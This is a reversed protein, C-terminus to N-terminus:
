ATAYRSEPDSPDLSASDTTRKSQVTSFVFPLLLLTSVTSLLLGGIVARGLPASQQGSDGVGLAMPIMGVVMAGTTMLIPRLRSVAGDVAAKSANGSEKRLREAFTVMLISNAVSVGISMIAGMFSEINLTTGTLRLMLCVGVVVAPVGSVVVLALMLSQFNAALLLFISVVALILGLRLGSFIQIMPAIQGRIDMSVGRPRDKQLPELVRAIDRAAYGLDRGHINATLSVMRQMNYRDIEGLMSTPKIQAVRDLPVSGGNLGIPIDRISQYSALDEQPVQVQIQHGIGTSPDAWYNPLVLRSSSTAPIVTRGILETSFGRIGATRRDIDVSVEPYDFVQGYQLDRLYPVHSLVEKVRSAFERDDRLKPGAIAVEIPTPSGQSMVRNLIGSPEFSVITDPFQADLIRRLKEQLAPVDLHNGSKLNVEITSEQPGSSWLYVVDNASSGVVTGVFATTSDVNEPGTEREILAQVKKTMEETHDLYTGTPARLRVQFGLSDIRPFIEQGIQPGVIALAACVAVAYGGVLAWRSKMGARLFKTYQRQLGKFFATEHHGHGAKPEPLIWTSLVPVFSRALFFSTIIAFGVALSLPQFLAQAVGQMFFAPTFVALVCLMTLLCPVIMENTADLVARALNKGQAVHTHINEITITTEDVLIGIALALGGLTMINITQGTLWLGTIAGALALPINVTVILASRWSRLFILVM